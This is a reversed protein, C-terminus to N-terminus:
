PHLLLGTRGRDDDRVFCVCPHPTGDECVGQLFLGAPIGATRVWDGDSFPLELDPLHHLIPEKEGPLRHEAAGGCFHSRGSNGWGRGGSCLMEWSPIIPFGSAARMRVM